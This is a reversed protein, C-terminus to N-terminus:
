FTTLDCLKRAIYFDNGIGNPQSGPQSTKVPLNGLGDEGAYGVKDLNQFLLFQKYAERVAIAGYGDRCLEFYLDALVTEGQSTSNSSGLELFINM